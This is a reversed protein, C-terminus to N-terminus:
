PSTCNIVIVNSVKSGCKANVSANEGDNLTLSTTATGNITTKFIPNITGVDTFFIVILGDDVPEGDTDTLIATIPIPMDDPEVNYIESTYGNAYITIIIDICEIDVTVSESKETFATVTATDGDKMNNDLTLEVTAIGNNTTASNASLAGSNTTFYVNTGDDVFDGSEEKRVVVTVTSKGGPANSEPNASISIEENEIISTDECEVDVTGSVDGIFATITAVEGAQMSASLELNVTAMGNVTNASSASLTGSSTIFYVATGDPVSDGETNTVVATIESTGGAVNFEPNANLTISEVDAEEETTVIIVVTAYGVKGNTDTVSLIVVYTGPDNYTHTTAIGTGSSGDGFDWSYSAISCGCDSESSVSSGSGDFAVTFPANGTTSPSVQITAIPAGVASDGVNIVVTAYGKNDWYDTVTLKAIYVGSVYTHAPPMVGTGTSGDGFDWSYSAIGRDDTSGSADFQVTFPANGTTGPTVNIVATPPEFDIGPLNAPLDFTITKSLNHGAGDTGMVTITADLEVVMPNLIMYDIVDQFYVPFGPEGDKPISVPNDFSSLPNPPVYFTAGIVRTLEPIKNGDVYYEFLFKEGIFEVENLSFITFSINAIGQATLGDLRYDVRIQAQPDFVNIIGNEFWNCGTLFLGFILLLSLFLFLKKREKLINKQL